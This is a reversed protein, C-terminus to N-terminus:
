GRDSPKEEKVHPRLRETETLQERVDSIYQWCPTYQLVQKLRKKRQIPEGELHIGHGQVLLNKDCKSKTM